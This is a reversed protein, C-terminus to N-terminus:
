PRQLLLICARSPWYAVREGIGGGYCCPVRGQGGCCAVGGADGEAGVGPVFVGEFGLDAGDDEGGGEEADGDVEGELVEAEGEVGVERADTGM